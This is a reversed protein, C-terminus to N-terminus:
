PLAEPQDVPEVKGDIPNDTLLVLAFKQNKGLGFKAGTVEIYWEGKKPKNIEVLEINDRRNVGRTATSEPSKPDLIYPEFDRVKYRRKKKKTWYLKLDLDNVLVSQEVDDLIPGEPDNWALAVKLSTVGSPITFRYYAPKQAKKKKQVVGDIITNHDAVADIVDAATKIDLLGFGFSYDPGKNGLDKATAAILARMEAVNLPKGRLNKSMQMLLACGGTVVPASMSTGSMISFSSGLGTSITHDGKAVVEPKIRGDLTPGWSSFDTMHDIADTAGVAIVNKASGNIGMCYYPGDPKPPNSDNTVETYRDNGEYIWYHGDSPGTDSRDNGASFVVIVDRDYILEDLARSRTYYLGFYDGYWEWRNRSVEFDWGLIYGYSNNILLTGYTDFATKMSSPVDKNYDFAYVSARPAMGKAAPNSEGSSIMTGTVHTAHSSKEDTSDVNTVRGVLDPHENVEGGDIIGIRIGEGDLGYVDRAVDVRSRQAAIRNKTQVKEIAPTLVYVLPSAALEKVESVPLTIDLSGGYRLSPQESRAGLTDLLYSVQDDTTGRFFLATITVEEDPSKLALRRRLYRHIKDDPSPRFLTTGPPLAEENARPKVRAWYSFDGLYEALRIGGANMADIQDTDPERDFHVIFLGGHDLNNPRVGKNISVTRGPTVIRVQDEQQPVLAASLILISFLAAACVIFKASSKM